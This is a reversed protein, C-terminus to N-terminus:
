QMQERVDIKGTVAASILASRYEKLLDVAERVKAVLADIKATERDLFADIQNQDKFPPVPLRTNSLDTLSLNAQASKVQDLSFQEQAFDSALCSAIWRPSAHHRETRVIAVAQNTNAPLIDKDVIAIRGIAGAIGVLVDGEMLQSRSLQQNTTPSIFACQEPIVRFSDSISEVKVFRVGEDAFEYGMTTPTTGKTVRMSVAKLRKVEWHAPIEDLWEVGSDKMPVNPDLGKTVARTILAARKEQLLEILREKKAVLADIKATERDLFTAILDQERSPPVCLSIVGLDEASLEKFTTGRGVAELVPRSSSLESYFFSQNSKQKFVLSRCGQNTCLAVGALALHGIPARTSLVLSGEPALHTGCSDYGCRTIRRGTETLVRNTLKGLDDPTAWPIDGDWYAPVESKPTAGNQIRFLRKLAKVEWHAPIEGLWAVGSDKYEPYPKYRPLKAEKIQEFGKPM